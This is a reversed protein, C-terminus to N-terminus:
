EFHQYQVNTRYSIISIPQSVMEFHMYIAHKDKNPEIGSAFNEVLEPDAGYFHPQSGLMPAGVCAFMDFTGTFLM